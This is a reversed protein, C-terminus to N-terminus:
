AFLNNKHINVLTFDGISERYIDLAIGINSLDNSIKKCGHSIKKQFHLVKNKIMIINIYNFGFDILVVNTKSKSKNKLDPILYNKRQNKNLKLNM